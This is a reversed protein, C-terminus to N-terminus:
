RANTGALTILEVQTDWEVAYDARSDALNAVHPLMGMGRMGKVFAEDSAIEMLSNNIIECLEDSMGAPGVVYYGADWSAEGFGQDQATKYNDPLTKGILKGIGEKGMGSPSICGIVKLKGAEEYSICNNMSGQGGNLSGSAVSTLKDSESSCQVFTVLSPDVDLATLLRLWMLHSTGGLSVGAIFDGPNGKIYAALEAFNNYPADSQVFFAQPGGDTIKAIVTLDEVPNVQSVGSLYNDMVTCASTILTMGDPDANATHQMGVENTEYNTVVISADLYNDWSNTIFRTIMDTGGGAKAPVDFNITKGTPWTIPVATPQATSAATPVTTAASPTTSNCGAFALLMVAASTLLLVKKM